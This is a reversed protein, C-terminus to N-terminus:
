GEGRVYLVFQYDGHAKIFAECDAYSEQYIDISRGTQIRDAGGTDEIEYMGIFEGPQGNDNEWVLAMCGILDRKAGCTYNAKPISGDATVGSNYHYCTVRMLQPETFPNDIEIDPMAFANNMFAFTLITALLLRKMIETTRNMGENFPALTV